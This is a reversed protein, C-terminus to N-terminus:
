SKKNSKNEKTRDYSLMEVSVTHREVEGFESHYIVAKMDRGSRYGQEAAWADLGALTRAAEVLVGNVEIKKDQHIHGTWWYRYPAEGWDQPRDLAMQLPLREMKISHGHHVGILVKGHRYYHKITPNDTICVRPENAFIHSLVTALMLSTHDDHNGIACIVTVKEHKHLAAQICRLMARIGTRLVKLWRTDTDLKNHSRRTEGSNDDAHFFDGLNIILANRCAPASAVLRDVAACLDREAIDLDFDNGTEESWSYLGFHPDGMPYVALLEASDLNKSKTVIPQYQPLGKALEEAIARLSEAEDNRQSRVWQLKVNGDADYLVSRGRVLMGAQVMGASDHIRAEEEPAYGNRERLIDQITWRSVGYEAALTKIAGMKKGEAVLEAYRKRIAAREEVQIKYTM